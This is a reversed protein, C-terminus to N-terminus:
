CMCKAGGCLYSNPQVHEQQMQQFLELAKQGQGCEVHGLIMANWTVVDRSSMKNFVRSADEISGCKAYMDILSNVVFFNSDWGCEIIQQHVRRGEELAVVSACANLVGVFTIANPQVSEQQM